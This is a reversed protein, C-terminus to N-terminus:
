LLGLCAPNGWFPVVRSTSTVLLVRPSPLVKPSTKPDVGVEALNPGHSYSSDLLVVTNQPGSPANRMDEDGAKLHDAIPTEPLDSTSTTVPSPTGVLGRSSLSPGGLVPPPIRRYSVSFLSWLEPIDRVKPDTAETRVRFIPSFMFPVDRSGTFLPLIM